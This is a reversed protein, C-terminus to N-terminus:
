GQREVLQYFLAKWFAENKGKEKGKGFSRKSAANPVKDRGAKTGMLFSIAM